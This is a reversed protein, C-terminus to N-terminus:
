RGKGKSLMDLELQALFADAENIPPADAKAKGKGKSNSPKSARSQAQEQIELAKFPDASAAAAKFVPIEIGATFVPTAPGETPQLTAEAALQQEETGGKVKRRKANLLKRREEIERKRKEMARSKVTGSGGAEDDQMGEVEGPKVDVAGMEQRTRETEDRSAKLEAMQALRTAEDGSFQYFGAGKARVEQSADYHAGLPNTEEAHAKAIDAVREASPEYM